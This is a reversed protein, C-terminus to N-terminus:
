SRIELSQINLQLREQGRWANITIEVAADIIDDPQVEDYHPITTNFVVAEVPRQGPIDIRYKRYQKRNGMSHVSLVRLHNMQFVPRRNGEGFPEMEAIQRALDLSLEEPDLEADISTRRTLLDPERQIRRQMEENLLTRLTDIRDKRLTFGCAAAHGGFHEFLNGHTNLMEFLNIGPISRGTGKVFGESSSEAVLVVPRYFRDKLKGAAIGTVGEHARGADYLIFLDEPHNQVIDEAARLFVADQETKRENNLLYLQYARERSDQGGPSMLLEVAEQATKMRGAANIHPVLGFALHYSDLTSPEIRIQKMLSALGEREGRRIRELGYKVLTRNEDKLPVVDGVTALGVLDLSRNLCAKPINMKRGLAQALKFAVGCGCLERFPYSEGEQKPDIMICDPARHDVSHHDTVIVDMGLEQAFKVEEFSVCGCDVTILLQVGGEAITRIADCNLGYGEKFRSPIYYSIHDPNTVERLYQVLLVVSTVGDADYDGYICIRGGKKVTQEILLCAEEMGKLLFPDYTTRPRSSFYEQQAQEGCIGRDELIRRLVPHLSQTTNM